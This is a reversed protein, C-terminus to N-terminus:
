HGELWRETWIEEWYVTDLIDIDRNWDWVDLNKQVVLYSLLTIRAGLKKVLRKDVDQYTNQQYAIRIGVDIHHNNIIFRKGM